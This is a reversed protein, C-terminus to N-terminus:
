CTSIFRRGKREWGKKSVEKLTCVRFILRFRDRNDPVREELEERLFLDPADHVVLDVLACRRRTAKM